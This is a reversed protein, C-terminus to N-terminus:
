MDRAVKTSIASVSVKIRRGNRAIEMRIAKADEEADRKSAYFDYPESPDDLETIWVMWSVDQPTYTSEPEGLDVDAFEKSGYCFAHSFPTFEDPKSEAYAFAEAAAELNSSAMVSVIHSQRSNVLRIDSNRALLVTFKKDM